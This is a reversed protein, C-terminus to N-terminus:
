VYADPGSGCTEPGSKERAECWPFRTQIGGQGAVQAREVQQMQAAVEANRPKLAVSQAVRLLLLVTGVGAAM